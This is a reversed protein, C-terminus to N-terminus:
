GMRWAACLLAVVLAPALALSIRIRSLKLGAVVDGVALVAALLAAIMTWLHYRMEAAVSFVAYGFGYLLSSSALPLTLRRSPLVPALSLVGLAVALWWIPWGLPSGASDVAARDIAGLAADPGVTFHWDNPASQEQVPREIEDKVLFRANINFHVLRHEAYALPHHLVASLWLGIGSIHRARLFGRLAYFQLPCPEDVWWSYPDWKVPSYCRHNVAVPDAVGLPPFVDAGSHESIGGLDFMVLSLEVGSREAGIARNALPLAAALLALAVGTGIAFRLPTRRWEHPLLALFLPLGALLANFRLTAAFLLLLLAPIRLAWGKEERTWALLGTATLLSGAMLCDKLVEGMLAFPIPLIACAALATALGPRRAKLAWGALLAFGGWYLLLQLLLMPQPGAHLPLLQRWIWEMTPPHWDDFDGDIAQGYQRASDWTMLGPWYAWAQIVAAIAMAAALLVAWRSMARSSSSPSALLM